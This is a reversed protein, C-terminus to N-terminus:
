KGDESIAALLEFFEMRTDEPLTDSFAKNLGRRIGDKSLFGAANPPFSTVITKLASLAQTILKPDIDNSFILEILENLAGVDNL